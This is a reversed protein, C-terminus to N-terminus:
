KWGKAAAVSTGTHSRQQSRAAGNCPRKPRAACQAIVAIAIFLRTRLQVLHVSDTAETM